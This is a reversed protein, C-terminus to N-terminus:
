FRVEGLFCMAWVLQLNGVCVAHVWGLEGSTSTLPWWPQRAPFTQVILTEM